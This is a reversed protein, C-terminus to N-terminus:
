LICGHPVRGTLHVEILYVGIPHVDILYAGTLSRPACRLLHIDALSMGSLYVHSNIAM